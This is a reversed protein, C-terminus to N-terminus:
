WFNWQKRFLVEIYRRLSACAHGHFGLVNQGTKLAQSHGNGHNKICTMLNENSFYDYINTLSQFFAKRILILLKKIPKSEVIYIDTFPFFICINLAHEIKKDISLRHFVKCAM